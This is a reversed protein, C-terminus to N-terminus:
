YQTRQLQRENRERHERITRFSFSDERRKREHFHRFVNADREVRTEDQDSRQNNIQLRRTTTAQLEEYQKNLQAVANKVTDRINKVESKLAVFEQQLQKKYGLMKTETEDFKKEVLENKLVLNDAKLDLQSLSEKTRGDMEEVNEKMKSTETELDAIKETKQILNEKVENMNSKHHTNDKKRSFALSEVKQDFRTQLDKNKDKTAKL